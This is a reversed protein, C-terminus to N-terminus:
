FNLNSLKPLLIAGAVGVEHRTDVALGETGDDNQPFGTGFPFGQDAHTGASGGRSWSQWTEGRRLFFLADSGLLRGPVLAESTKTPAPNAGGRGM